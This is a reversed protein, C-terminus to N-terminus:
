LSLQFRMRHGLMDWIHEIPNFDPSMAPWPVSTVAESQLYATAARSLHSRGVDVFVNPMTNLVVYNSMACSGNTMRSGTEAEHLRHGSSPKSVCLYLRNGFSCGTLQGQLSSKCRGICNCCDMHLILGPSICKNTFYCWPGYKSPFVKHLQILSNIYCHVLYINKPLFIIHFVYWVTM